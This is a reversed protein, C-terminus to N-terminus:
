LNKLNIVEILKIKLSCYESNNQYYKTGKPIICKVVKEHERISVTARADEFKIFSHLGWHITERMFSRGFSEVQVSKHLTYRFDRYLSTIKTKEKNLNKCVKYCVINENAVQIKRSKSSIFFCM